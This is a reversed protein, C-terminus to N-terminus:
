PTIPMQWPLPADLRDIFDFLVCLNFTLTICAEHLLAHRSRTQLVCIVAHGQNGSHM